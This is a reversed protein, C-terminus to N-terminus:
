EYNFVVLLLYWDGLLVSYVLVQCLIECVQWNDGQFLVLVVGSLGVSLCLVVFLVDQLMIVECLFWIVVYQELLLVFYYLWCCSCLIVLLCEFECIVLFFWIEVLLEEFMKLLVNVVVDILLVVDIVWVVKVGGLCVYENLKEIVECVVDVGLMNKGKEFVLIYYDFYMGVQM